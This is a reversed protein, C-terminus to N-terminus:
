LLNRTRLADVVPGLAVPNLRFKGSDLDFALVNQNWLIELELRTDIPNGDTVSALEVATLNDHQLIAAMLFSVDMSVDRVRALALPVLPEVTLTDSTRAQVSRLWYYLAALINEECVEALEEFYIEELARQVAPEELRRYRRVRRKLARAVTPGTEYRIRYGSLHHRRLILRRLEDGAWPRIAIEEQFLRAFPLWRALYDRAYEDLCVGWLVHHNTRAILWLLNRIAELGGIRRLFLNHCGELVIVRRPGELLQGSLGQVGAAGDLGLVGALETALEHATIHKEHFTHRALRDEDGFLRECAVNLLTTKGGGRQGYLVFSSTLGEQWRRVAAEIQALEEDFGVVLSDDVLPEFRFHDVYDDPLGRELVWTLRAEDAAQQARERAPPAAGLWTLVESLTEGAETWAKRGGQMLLPGIRRAAGESQVLTWQLHDVAWRVGRALHFQVQGHRKADVDLLDFREAHVREMEWLLRDWEGRLLDSLERCRNTARNWSTRLRVSSLDRREFDDAVNGFALRTVAIGDNIAARYGTEFSAVLPLGIRQTDRFHHHGLAAVPVLRYARRGQWSLDAAYAAEDVSQDFLTTSQAFGAHAEQHLGALRDADLLDQAMQSLVSEFSQRVETALAEREAAEARLMRVQLTLIPALTADIHNSLYEVDARAATALTQRLAAAAQRAQTVVQAYPTQGDPLHPAALTRRVRHLLDPLRLLRLVRLDAPLPAGVAPALLVLLDVLMLPHLLRGIFRHGPARAGDAHGAWVRALYELATLGIQVRFCWVLHVQFAALHDALWYEGAQAATGILIVLALLLNMARSGRDGPAAVVLLEFLRHTFRQSM